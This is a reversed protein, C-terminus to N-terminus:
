AIEDNDTKLFRSQLGVPRPNNGLDKSDRLYPRCKVIYWTGCLYQQNVETIQLAVRDKFVLVDYDKPIIQIGNLMYPLYLISMESEKYEQYWGLDNLLRKKPNNEFLVKINLGGTVAADDVYMSMTQVTYLTASVGFKDLSEEVFKSSLTLEQKNPLFLGDIKSSM